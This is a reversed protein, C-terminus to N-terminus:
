ETVDETAFLARIDAESAFSISDVFADLNDQVDSAAGYSDYTNTAISATVGKLKGDEEVVEIALGDDGASQSVTSDLANIASTLDDSQLASDAKDLSAKVTESLKDTTVNGDAIKSTVVADDALETATISGAVITASIENTDSVAIQVQAANTSATYVDVLDKVNIYIPAEQNAIVLKIYTGEDQGDPNVVVSGSTVVLDRPIDIKGVESTGQSIVYTKLYGDTATEATTITVAGSTQANSVATNIENIASVVDSKTTTDLKEIDGIEADVASKVDAIEKYLGTAADEGSAKNGIEEQIDAIDSANTDAKGVIEVLADEVTTATIKGDADDISVDKAAGSTAVTALGDVSDAVDAIQKALSGDKTADKEDALADSVDGILGVVTKGSEVEGIKDNINQIAKNVETFDVEPLAVEFTPESEGVPQGITYFKISNSDADFSVTEIKKAVEDSIVKDADAVYKKILEDYIGLEKLEVVTRNTIEAM